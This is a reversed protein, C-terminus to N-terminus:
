SRRAKRPSEFTADDKKPSPVIQIQETATPLPHHLLSISIQNHVFNWCIIRSCPPKRLFVCLKSYLGCRPCRKMGERRFAHARGFREFFVRPYSKIVPCTPDAQVHQIRQRAAGSGHIRTKRFYGGFWAPTWPGVSFSPIGYECPTELKYSATTQEYARISTSFTTKM